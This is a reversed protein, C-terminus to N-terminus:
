PVPELNNPNQAGTVLFTSSSNNLVMMFEPCKVGDAYFQDYFVAVGSVNQNQFPCGSTPCAITVNYFNYNADPTLTGSFSCSSPSGSSPQASLILQSSSVTVDFSCSNGAIGAGYHYSFDSLSPPATFSYDNSPLVYGQIATANGGEALTGNLSTGAVFTASFTGAQPSSGSFDNYTGSFTNGSVTGQGVAVGSRLPVYFSGDPMIITAITQDIFGSFYVNQAANSVPVASSSSQTAVTSGGCGSMVASSVLLALAKTTIRMSRGM